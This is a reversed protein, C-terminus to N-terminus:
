SKQFIVAYVSPQLGDLAETGLGYRSRVILSVSAIQTGETFEGIYSVSNDQYSKRMVMSGKEDFALLDFDAACDTRKDQGFSVVLKDPTVAGDFVFSYVCAGSQETVEGAAAVQRTLTVGALSCLADLAQAYFVEEATADFPTKTPGCEAQYKQNSEHLAFTEKTPIYGNWGHVNGAPLVTAYPAEAKLRAGIISFPEFNVGLYAINGFAGAHYVSQMAEQNGWQQKFDDNTKTTPIESVTLAASIEGTVAQTQITDFVRLIEAAFAEGNSELEAHDAAYYKGEALPGSNGYFGNIHMAICDLNDTQLTKELARSTMGTFECSLLNHVVKLGPGNGFMTNHMPVSYVLGMPKGTEADDFRIVNMLADYPAETDMTYDGGRSVGFQTCVSGTGIKAPRRNDYAYQVAEAIKGEDAESVVMYSQHTHTNSLLINETKTNCIDAIQSILAESVNRTGYAWGSFVMELNLFVLCDKGNDVVLVRALLDSMHGDPYKCLSTEDHAEYGELYVDRTPTIDAKAMGVQFTGAETNMAADEQTNPDKSIVSLDSCASLLMSMLLLVALLRIKGNKCRM